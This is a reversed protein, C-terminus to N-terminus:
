KNMMNFGLLLSIAVAIYENAIIFQSDTAIEHQSLIFVGIAYLFFFVAPVKLPLQLVFYYYALFIFAITIFSLGLHHIIMDELLYLNNIINDM